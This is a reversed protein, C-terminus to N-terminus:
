ETAEPVAGTLEDADMKEPTVRRKYQRKTAPQPMLDGPLSASELKELLETNHANAKALAADLDAVRRRLTKLEDETGEVTVSIRKDKMLLDLTHQCIKGNERDPDKDAGPVVEVEITERPWGRGACFVFKFEPGPTSRVKYKM